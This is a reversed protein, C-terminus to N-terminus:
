FLRRLNNWFIKELLERPYGRGALVAWIQPIDEVGRLGGALKECGDLDGGICLTEEGGIDLMHEIQRVLGDMTEDSGVFSQYLNMGAVGGTDRIARLMDDTLNRRHPCVARSNSHSALIPRHTMRVLDWFGPDSLHSVDAYIGCAEMERIFDRGQASLGRESEELNTGSLANTRNWVPNIIRVGWLAAQQVRGPDCALLEAGEISLLAAAAGDEAARDIEEGTRCPRIRDANEEMERLFREHQRACADLLMQQTLGRGDRYLAFVQAYRSFAQETRGLDIHGGSRRLSCPVAYFDRDEGVFGEGTEVCRSITDCHADFYPIKEM